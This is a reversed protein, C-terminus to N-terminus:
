KNDPQTESELTVACTYNYRNHENSWTRSCSLTGSDLEFDNPGHDDHNGMMYTWMARSPSVDDYGQDLTIEYGNKTSTLTIESSSKVPTDTCGNRALRYETHFGEIKGRLDITFACAPFKEYLYRGVRAQVRDVCTIPVVRGEKAAQKAFKKLTAAPEGFFQVTMKGTCTNEVAWLPSPTRDKERSQAFGPVSFTSTFIALSILWSAFHQDTRQNM